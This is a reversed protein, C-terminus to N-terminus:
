KANPDPIFITKGVILKNADLGPNAELIKKTTVTKVGAERYAKAIAALTDGNKIVYPHGSQPTAPGAAGAGSDGSGNEGSGGSNSVHPHKPKDGGTSGGTAGSLNKIEKLILERDDQRKQDVEKINEALKKLDANSANDPNAAPTNVKERLETIEKELAEIKKNQAEITASLDQISGSLKDIQQQTADEGFVPAVALTIFASLILFSIRKMRFHFVAKGAADLQLLCFGVGTKRIEPDGALDV